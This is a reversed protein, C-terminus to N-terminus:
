SEQIIFIHLISYFKYSLPFLIMFNILSVMKQSGIKFSMQKDNFNAKDYSEYESNELANYYMNKNSYNIFNTYFIM